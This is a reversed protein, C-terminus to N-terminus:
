PTNGSANAVINMATAMSPQKPWPANCVARCEDDMAPPPMNPGWLPPIGCGCDYCIVSHHPHGRNHGGCNPCDNYM